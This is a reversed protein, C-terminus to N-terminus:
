TRLIIFMKHYDFLLPGFKRMFYVGLKLIRMDLIFHNEGMEWQFNSCKSNCEVKGGDAVTVNLRNTYVM